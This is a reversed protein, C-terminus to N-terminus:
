RFRRLCAFLLLRFRSRSDMWGGLDSYRIKFSEWTFAISKFGIPEAMAEPLGSAIAAPPPALKLAVLYLVNTLDFKFFFVRNSRGNLM